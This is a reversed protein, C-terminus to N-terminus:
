KKTNKSEAKGKRKTETDDDKAGAELERSKTKHLELARKANTAALALISVKYDDIQKRSYGQALAEEETDPISAGAGM